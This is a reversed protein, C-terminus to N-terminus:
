ARSRTAWIDGVLVLPRRREGEVHKRRWVRWAPWQGGRARGLQPEVVLDEDRSLAAAIEQARWWPWPQAVAQEATITEM